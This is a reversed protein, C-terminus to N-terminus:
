FLGKDKKLARQKWGPKGRFEARTMKFLAMFEANSLYNELKTKEVAVGGFQKAKLQSYPIVTAPEAENEAVQKSDDDDAGKAKRKKKKRGPSKSRTQSAAAAPAAAKGKDKRKNPPAPKSFSKTSSGVAKPSPSKTAPAPSPSPSRAKKSKSKKAKSVTKPKRKPSAPHAAASIAPKEEEEFSFPKAESQTQSQAPGQPASVAPEDLPAVLDPAFWGVVGTKELKGLWWGSEDKAQLVIRDGVAFALEEAGGEDYAYRAVLVDGESPENKHIAPLPKEEVVEVYTSPFLGQRKTGAVQGTWWGEAEERDIIYIMDGARLTLDGHVQAEYDFLARAKPYNALGQESIYGTEQIAEQVMSTAGYANGQQQQQHLAAEVDSRPIAYSFFLKEKKAIHAILKDMDAFDKKKLKKSELRFLMAGRKEFLSVRFSDFGTQTHVVLTVAYYGEKSADQDAPVLVHSGVGHGFKNFIDETSLSEDANDVYYEIKHLAANEADYDDDSESDDAPAKEDTQAAANADEGGLNDAFYCRKCARQMVGEGNPLKYKSCKNCCLIGCRRCHHRRNVFTFKDSCIKCVKSHSDPVWVGAAHSDTKYHGSHAKKAQEDICGHLAETWASAESVSDAYVVFSKKENIVNFIRGHKEAGYLAADDGSIEEVRFAANIPLMNHLKYGRGYPTAYILIDNFLFFHYLRDKSRCVKWLKGERIFERHPELISVNSSSDFKREIRKVNERRDFEKMRSNIQLSIEQVKELSKTAAAKDPHSDATNKLIEGLLLKYRPLRQIPLILLSALDFRNCLPRVTACYEVWKEKEQLRRMLTVSKEHNNVYGQYMRFYPTFTEFLDSLKSTNADWHERREKLDELFKDSLGKIIQVQPFLTNHQDTSILKYDGLPKVFHEILLGLLTNYTVETDVLEMTAKEKRHLREAAKDAPSKETSPSAPASPLV